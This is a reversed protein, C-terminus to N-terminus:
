TTENFVNLYSCNRLSTHAAVVASSTAEMDHPYTYVRWNIDQNKSDIINNFFSKQPSCYMGAGSLRILIM